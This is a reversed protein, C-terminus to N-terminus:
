LEIEPGGMDQDDPNEDPWECEFEEEGWEAM